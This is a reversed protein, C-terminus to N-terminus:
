IKIIVGRVLLTSNSDITSSSNSNDINSDVSSSSGDARSNSAIAVASKAVFSTSTM